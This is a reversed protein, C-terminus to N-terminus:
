EKVNEEFKKVGWRVAYYAVIITVPYTLLLLIENLYM